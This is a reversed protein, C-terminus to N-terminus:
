RADGEANPEDDDEPQDCGCPIPGSSYTAPRWGSGRCQRCGTTRFSDIDARDSPSLDGRYSSM